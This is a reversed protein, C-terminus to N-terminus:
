RGAFEQAHLFRPIVPPLSYSQTDSAVFSRGTIPWILIPPDPPEHEALRTARDYVDQRVAQVSGTVALVLAGVLVPPRRRRPARKWRTEEAPPLRPRSHDRRRPRSATLVRGCGPLTYRLGVGHVARGGPRRRHCVPRHPYGDAPAPGGRRAGSRASDGRRHGGGPLLRDLAVPGGGPAHTRASRGGAANRAHLECAPPTGDCRRREVGPTRRLVGEGRRPRRYGVREVDM